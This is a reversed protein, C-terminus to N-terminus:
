EFHPEGGLKKGQLAMLFDLLQAMIVLVYGIFMVFYQWDYKWHLLASFEGKDHAILFRNFGACGVFTIVVLGLFSTVSNLIRAGTESLKPALVDICINRGRYTAMGMAIYGAMCILMSQIELCGSVPRNFLNRGLVEVVTLCLIFVLMLATLSNCILCAYYVVRDYVHLLRHLFSKM